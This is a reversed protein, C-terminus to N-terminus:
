RPTPLLDPFKKTDPVRKYFWTQMILMQGTIPDQIGSIFNNQIFCICGRGILESSQKVGFVKCVDSVFLNVLDDNGFRVSGFVQTGCEYDMTIAITRDGSRDKSHLNISSITAMKKEANKPAVYVIGFVNDFAM